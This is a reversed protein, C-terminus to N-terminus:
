QCAAGFPNSWSELQFDNVHGSGASRGNEREYDANDTPLEHRCVPCTNRINLWPMICDCHYYHSCPLRTVKETSLIEDKCVACAANSGKLHEDSVVVLPLNELVSKAAPPSGKLREQSGVFDVAGFGGGDQLIVANHFELSRELDNVAVLFEWELNRSQGEEGDEGLGLNGEESSFDSSVSIEEMRGILYSINDERGEVREVEEWESDEDLDGEDGVRFCNWLDPVSSNGIQHIVEEDESDSESDVGVVRLGDFEFGLEVEEDDPLVRSNSNNHVVHPHDTVEDNRSDLLDTVLDMQDENCYFFSSPNGILDSRDSESDVSETSSDFSPIFFTPNYPSFSYTPNEQEVENESFNTTQKHFRLSYNEAM